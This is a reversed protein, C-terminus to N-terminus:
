QFVVKAFVQSGFYCELLQGGSTTPPGQVFLDFSDDISNQSRYCIQAYDKMFIRGRYHRSAAKRIIRHMLKQSSSLYSPAKYYNFSSRQSELTPQREPPHLQLAQLEM